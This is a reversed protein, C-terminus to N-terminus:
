GERDRDALAQLEDEQNEVESRDACSPCLGDYGDGVTGYELEMGVLELGLARKIRVRFEGFATCLDALDIPTDQEFAEQEYALLQDLVARLQPTVQEEAM